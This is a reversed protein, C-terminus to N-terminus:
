FEIKLINLIAWIEYNMSLELVKSFRTLLYVSHREADIKLLLTINFYNCYIDKIIM